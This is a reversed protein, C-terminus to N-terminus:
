LLMLVAMGGACLSIVRALRIKKPLEAEAQEVAGTLYARCRACNQLEAEYSAQGMLEGFQRMAEIDQGNLQLADKATELAPLFGERAWFSFFECGHLIGKDETEGYRVLIEGIELRFCGIQEEMYIVLQLLAKVASLRTRYRDCILKGAYVAAFFLCLLGLLKIM